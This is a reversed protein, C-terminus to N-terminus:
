LSTKIKFPLPMFVGDGRDGVSEKLDQSEEVNIPVNQNQFLIQLLCHTQVIVLSERM